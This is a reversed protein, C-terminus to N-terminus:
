LCIVARDNGHAITSKGSYAIFCPRSGDATLGKRRRVKSDAHHREEFRAIRSVAPDIAHHRQAQPLRSHTGDSVVEDFEQSCRGGCPPSRRDRPQEQFTRACSPRQLSGLFPNTRRWSPAAFRHKRLRQGLGPNQSKGCRARVRCAAPCGGDGTGSGEANDM